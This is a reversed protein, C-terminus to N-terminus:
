IYQLIIDNRQVENYCSQVTVATMNIMTSHVCLFPLHHPFQVWQVTPLISTLIYLFFCIPLQHYLLMVNYGNM